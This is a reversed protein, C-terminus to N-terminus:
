GLPVHPHRGFSHVCREVWRQRRPTGESSTTGMRGVHRRPSMDLFSREPRRVGVNPQSSVGCDFYLICFLVFCFLGYLATLRAEMGDHSELYRQLNDALPAAAGSLKRKRKRDWVAVRPPDPEVSTSVKQISNPSSHFSYEANSM